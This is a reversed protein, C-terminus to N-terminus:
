KSFCIKTIAKPLGILWVSSQRKHLLKTHSQFIYINTRIFQSDGEQIKFKNEIYKKVINNICVKFVIVYILHFLVLLGMSMSMIRLLLINHNKEPFGYKKCGKWSEEGGQNRDQDRLNNEQNRHLLKSVSLRKAALGGLCLGSPM